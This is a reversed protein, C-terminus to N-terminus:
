LSGKVVRKRKVGLARKMVSEDALAKFREFSPVGKTEEPWLRGNDFIKEMEVSPNPLVNLRVCVVALEAAAENGFDSALHRKSFERLIEVSTKEDSSGIMGLAKAAVARAMKVSSESEFFLSCLRALSDGNLDDGARDMLGCLFRGKGRMAAAEMSSVAANNGNFVRWLARDGGTPMGPRESALHSKLGKMAARGVTPRGVLGDMLGLGATSDADHRLVMTVLAREVAEDTELGFDVRTAGAGIMRTAISNSGRLLCELGLDSGPAWRRKCFPEVIDLDMVRIWGFMARRAWAEWVTRGDNAQAGHDKAREFLWKAAWPSVSMLAVEGSENKADPDAGGELLLELELVSGRKAAGLFIKAMEVRPLGAELLLSSLRKSEKSLFGGRSWFRETIVGWGREQIGRGRGELWSPDAEMASRAEDLAVGQPLFPNWGRDLWDTLEASVAADDRSAVLTWLATRAREQPHMRKRAAGNVASM